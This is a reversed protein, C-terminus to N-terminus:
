HLWSVGLFATITVASGNCTCPPSGSVEKEGTKVTSPHRLPAQSFKTLVLVHHPSTTGGSSSIYTIKIGQFVLPQVDKTSSASTLDDVHEANLSSFGVLSTYFFPTFSHIVLLFMKHAYFVILPQTHVKLAPPIYLLSVLVPQVHMPSSSVFWVTTYPTRGEVTVIDCWQSGSHHRTKLFVSNNAPYSLM